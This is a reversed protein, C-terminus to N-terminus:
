RRVLTIAREPCASVCLGCAHCAESRPTYATKKGHAWVKLRALLPLARYDDEDIQRVEFVDYPCVSTCESKGECRSREVRPQFTGPEAKCGQDAPSM